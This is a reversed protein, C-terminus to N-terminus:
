AGALADLLQKLEADIEDPGDLTEAVEDRLVTGFRKKLRHVAVKVSGESMSLAEAIEAYPKSVGDLAPAIADYLSEQGRAAYQDRLRERATQLTALAWQRAFVQEPDLGPAVQRQFREEADDVEVHKRRQTEAKARVNHHHNRVATFLWSRFRRGDNDVRSLDKRRVLGTFFEQTQEAADEAGLGRRRLFAYVPFWYAGCLDDLAGLSGNGARLVISWRTTRPSSSRNVPSM